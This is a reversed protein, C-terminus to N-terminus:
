RIFVLSQPSSQSEDFSYGLESFKKLEDIKKVKNKVVFAAM